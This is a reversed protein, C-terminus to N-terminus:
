EAVLPTIGERKFIENICFLAFRFDKETKELWCVPISASYFGAAITQEGADILYYYGRGRVLRMEHGAKKLLANIRTVPSKIKTEM